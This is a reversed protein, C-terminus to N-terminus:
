YFRSAFFYLLACIVSILLDHIPVTLASEKPECMEEARGVGLLFVAMHSSDSTYYLIDTVRPPIYKFVNFM